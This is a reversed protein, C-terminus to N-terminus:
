ESTMVLTVEFEVLGRCTLGFVAIEGAVVSIVSDAKIGSQRFYFRRLPM